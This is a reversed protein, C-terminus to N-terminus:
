TTFNTIKSILFTGHVLYPSNLPELVFSIQIITQFQFVHIVYNHMCQDEFLLSAFVM